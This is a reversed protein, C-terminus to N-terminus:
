KFISIETALAPIWLVQLGGFAPSKTALLNSNQSELGGFACVHYLPVIKACIRTKIIRKYHPLNIM